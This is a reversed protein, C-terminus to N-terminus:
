FIFDCNLKTSKHPLPLLLFIALAMEFLVFAFVVVYITMAYAKALLNVLLTASSTRGLRPSYRFAVNAFNAAAVQKVRVHGIRLL